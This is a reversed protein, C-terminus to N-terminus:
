SSMMEAEPVMIWRLHALGQLASRCKRASLPPSMALLLETPVLHRPPGAVLQRLQLYLMGQM